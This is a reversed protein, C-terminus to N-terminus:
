AITQACIQQFPGIQDTQGFSLKYLSRSICTPITGFRSINQQVEFIFKKQYTSGVLLLVELV